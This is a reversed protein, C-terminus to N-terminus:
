HTRDVLREVRDLQKQLATLRENIEVFRRQNESIAKSNESTVSAAREHADENHQAYILGIAVVLAIAGALTTRMIWSSNSGSDSSNPQLLRTM